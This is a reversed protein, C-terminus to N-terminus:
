VHAVIAELTSLARLLTKEQFALEDGLLLSRYGLVALFGIDSVEECTPRLDRRLSSLIRSAAVAEPDAQIIARLADLMQGPQELELYLDGRAAMLHVQGAYRHYDKAVWALGEESEIKALINAQPDLALVDEIDRSSEVFSLMFNHLGVRGAAALYARDRETLYGKIRLSPDLINISMGAGLPIPPVDELYLKNGEVRSITAIAEGSNILAQVPTRVEIEHSLEVHHFPVYSASAVRLQRCKLDIWLERPAVRQRLKGLVLALDHAVPMVTNLRVGRVLACASAKEVYAAYPPVTIIAKV